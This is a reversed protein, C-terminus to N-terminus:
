GLGSTTGSALLTTHGTDINGGPAAGLGRSCEPQSAAGAVAATCAAADCPFTRANSRGPSMRSSTYPLPPRVSIGSTLHDSFNSVQMPRDVRARSRSRCKSRRSRMRSFFLADTKLRRRFRGCYRCCKRWHGSKQGKV